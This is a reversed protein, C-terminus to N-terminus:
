INTSSQRKKQIKKHLSERTKCCAINLIKSTIALLVRQKWTSMRPHELVTIRYYLLSSFHNHGHYFITSMKDSCDLM